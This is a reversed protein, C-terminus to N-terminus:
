RPTFAIHDTFKANLWRVHMTVTIPVAEGPPYQETVTIFCLGRAYNPRDWCVAQGGPADRDPWKAQMMLDGGIPLGNQLLSGFLIVKEGLQPEANHFWLQLEYRDRLTPSPAPTLAPLSGPPAPTVTPIATPLETAQPPPTSTEQMQSAPSCAGLCPLLSCLILLMRFCATGSHQAATTAKDLWGRSYGRM